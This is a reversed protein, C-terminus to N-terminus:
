ICSKGKQEEPEDSLNQDRRRIGLAREQEYKQVLLHNRTNELTIEMATNNLEM